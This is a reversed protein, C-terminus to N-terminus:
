RIIRVVFLNFRKLWKKFQSFSHMFYIHSMINIDRIQIIIISVADPNSDNVNAVQDEDSNEEEDLHMTHEPGPIDSDDGRFGRQFTNEENQDTANLQHSHQWQVNRYFSNFKKYTEPCGNVNCTISFNPRTSHERRIHSLLIRLTLAFFIFCLSCRWAM